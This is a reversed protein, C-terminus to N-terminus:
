EDFGGSSAQEKAHEQYRFIAWELYMVALSLQRSPSTRKAGTLTLLVENLRSLISLSETFNKGM